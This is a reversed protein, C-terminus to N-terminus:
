QSCRVAPGGQHLLDPPCILFGHCTELLLLLSHALSDVMFRCGGGIELGSCTVRSHTRKHTLRCTHTHPKIFLVGFPLAVGSWLSMSIVGWFMKADAWEHKHLFVALLIILVETIRSATQSLGHYWLLHYKTNTVWYPHLSQPRETTTNLVQSSFVAPPNTRVTALSRHENAHMKLPVEHQLKYCWLHPPSSRIGVSYDANEPTVNLIRVFQPFRTNTCTFTFSECQFSSTFAKNVAFTIRPQLVFLWNPNVQLLQRKWIKQLPTIFALKHGM